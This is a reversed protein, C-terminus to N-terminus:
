TAICRAMADRDTLAQYRNLVDAWPMGTAEDTSARPRTEDGPWRSDRPWSGTPGSRPASIRLRDPFGGPAGPHEIARAAADAWFLCEGRLWERCPLCTIQEPVTSTSSLPRRLGCGTGVTKPLDPAVGLADTLLARIAQHGFGPLLTKEAHVYPDRMVIEERSEPLLRALVRRVHLRPLRERHLDEVAAAVDALHDGVTATADTGEALQEGLALLAWGIGQLAALQRVAVDKQDSDAAAEDLFEAATAAYRGAVGNRREHRVAQRNDAWRQAQLRTDFVDSRESVGPEVEAVWGRAGVLHHPDRDLVLGSKHARWVSRDRRGRGPDAAAQQGAAHRGPERRGHKGRIM